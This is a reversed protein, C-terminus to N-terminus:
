LPALSPCAHAPPTCSRPAHMLSPCAHAPPPPPPPPMCSCPAHMLSPRAHTPAHMFSPCALSHAHMATVHPKQHHCYEKRQEHQPSTPIDLRLLACVLRFQLFHGKRSIPHSGSSETCTSHVIDKPLSTMYLLPKTMHAPLAKRGSHVM